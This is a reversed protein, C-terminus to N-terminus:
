RYAISQRIGDDNVLQKWQEVERRLHIEHAVKVEKRAPSKPEEPFLIFYFGFILSSVLVRTCQCVCVHRGNIKIEMVLEGINRKLSRNCETKEAVAANPETLQVAEM